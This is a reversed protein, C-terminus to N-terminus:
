VAAAAATGTRTDFFAAMLNESTDLSYKM